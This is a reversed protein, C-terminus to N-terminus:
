AVGQHPGICPIQKVQMAMIGIREIVQWCTDFTLDLGFRAIGPTQMRSPELIVHAGCRPLLNNQQPQGVGAALSPCHDLTPWRSEQPKGTEKREGNLVGTESRGERQCLGQEQSM